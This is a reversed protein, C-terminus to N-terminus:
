EEDDRPATAAILHSSVPATILVFLGALLARVGAGAITAAVALLVVGVAGVKAAAHVRLPVTPFRALGVIGLTMIALACLTLASLLVGTM